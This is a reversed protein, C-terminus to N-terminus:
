MIVTRGSPRTEPVDVRSPATLAATLDNDRVVTLLTDAGHASQRVSNALNEQMSDVVDTLAEAFVERVPEPLLENRTLDVLPRLRARAQIMNTALALPTRDLMASDRVFAEVWLEQRAVFAENLRYLVRSYMDPGMSDGLALLHTTPLDQGRGFAALWDAWAAYPNPTNPRERRKRVDGV